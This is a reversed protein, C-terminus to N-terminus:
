MYDSLAKLRANHSRKSVLYRLCLITQTGRHSSRLLQYYWVKTPQVLSKLCPKSQLVAENHPKRKPNQSTLSSYIRSPTMMVKVTSIQSNVLRARWLVPNRHTSKTRANPLLSEPQIRKAKYNCKNTSKSPQLKLRSQLQM